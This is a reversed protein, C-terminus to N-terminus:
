CSDNFNSCIGLLPYVALTCDFVVLVFAEIILSLGGILILFFRTFFGVARSIFADGLKQFLTRKYVSTTLTERFPKFLSKALDNISFFDMTSEFIEKFKNSLDKFGAGYWWGFLDMLFMLLIIGSGAGGSVVKV